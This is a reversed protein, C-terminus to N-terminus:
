TRSLLSKRAASLTAAHEGEGVEEGLQAAPAAAGQEGREAQTDADAEHDGDGGQAVPEVVRLVLDQSREGAHAGVHRDRAREIGLARLLGALDAHHSFAGAVMPTEGFGRRDYRLVKYHAALEAFQDDWMRRDAIGAHVLVLPEGEGAMEYFIDTGNVPVAGSQFQKLEAM